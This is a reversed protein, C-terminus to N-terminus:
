KRLTKSRCRNYTPLGVESIHESDFKVLSRLPPPLLLIIIFSVSRLSDTAWITAPKSLLWASLSWKGHSKLGGDDISCPYITEIRKVWRKTVSCEEHILKLYNQLTRTQKDLFIVRIPKYLCKATRNIYASLMSRAPLKFVYPCSIRHNLPNLYVGYLKRTGGKRNCLNWLHSLRDQGLIPHSPIRQM